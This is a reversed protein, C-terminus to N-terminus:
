IITCKGEPDHIVVTTASMAGITPGEPSSFTNVSRKRSSSLDNALQIDFSHDGEFDDDNFITINICATNGTGNPFSFVSVSINFDM